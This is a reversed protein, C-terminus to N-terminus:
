AASRHWCTSRLGLAVPGDIWTGEDDPGRRAMTATMAALELRAEPSGLDRDFSAWGCIGCM